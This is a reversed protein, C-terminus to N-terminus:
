RQICFILHKGSRTTTKKSRWGSNYLSSAFHQSAYTVPRCASDDVFQLFAFGKGHSLITNFVNCRKVFWQFSIGSPSKWDLESLPQNLIHAPDWTVPLVLHDSGVDTINLIELLKRWFGSALYPGDAAVGCLRSVMDKSFNNEIAELLQTALLDYSFDTCVISAAIPIPCPVGTENRAIVLVAQNTRSPTAKDVTAWIHPPLLTSLLPQNLWTNIRRNLTKELCHLIANFSKHSHDLM